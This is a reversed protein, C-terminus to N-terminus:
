IGLAELLRAKLEAKKGTQSLTPDQKKLAAKLKPVTLKDIAEKTLPKGKKSASAAKKPAPAAPAATPEEAVPTPTGPGGYLLLWALAVLLQGLLRALM